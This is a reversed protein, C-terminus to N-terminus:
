QGAQYFDVNKHLQAIELTLRTSRAYLRLNINTQKQSKTEDIRRSKTNQNSEAEFGFWGFINDDEQFQIVEMKSFYSKTKYQMKRKPHDKNEM